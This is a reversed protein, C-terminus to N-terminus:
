DPCDAGTVFPMSHEGDTIAKFGWGNEDKRSRILLEASDSYEKTFVGSDEAYVKNGNEFVTVPSSHTISIKGKVNTYAYAVYGKGCLSNFDFDKENSQPPKVPYAWEINDISPAPEEKKYLRSVKIGKQRNCGDVDVYQWSCYVYFDPSMRLAPILPLTQAGFIDKEAKVCFTLKNQGKKFIVPIDYTGIDRAYTMNKEVEKKEGNFWVEPFDGCERINIIMDREYLGDMLSEFYVYDGEEYDPYLMKLDAGPWNIDQWEQHTYASYQVETQPRKERVIEYFKELFDRNTNYKELASHECYIGM